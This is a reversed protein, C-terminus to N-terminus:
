SFAQEVEANAQAFTCSLSLRNFTAGRVQWPNLSHAEGGGSSSAANLPPLQDQPFERFTSYNLTRM